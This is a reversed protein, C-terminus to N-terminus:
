HISATDKFNLYAYDGFHMRAAADYAHAAEEATPFLGLYYNKGKARIQSIYRKCQSHRTVGKYGTTNKCTRPRNCGNTSKNSLRLNSRSNNLKDGDIHDILVYRDTVGMIERHMAQHRKQGKNYITRFAYGTTSIWWTYQSLLDYDSDDVKVERGHAM